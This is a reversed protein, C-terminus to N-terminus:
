CHSKAINLLKASVCFLIQASIKNVSITLIAVSAGCMAPHESCRGLHVLFHEM